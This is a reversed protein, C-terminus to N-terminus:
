RAVGVQYLAARVASRMGSPLIGSFAAGTLCTVFGKSGAFYAVAKTKADPTAPQPQAAAPVSPRAAPQSPAPQPTPAPQPAPALPQSVAGYVALSGEPVSSLPPAQVGAPVPDVEISYVMRECKPTNADGGQDRKGPHAQPVILRLPGEDGASLASGSKEYAIISMLNGPYTQLAEAISLDVSYGDRAKVVLKSAGADLRLKQQLLTSLSVGKYNEEYYTYPELQKLFTYHGSFAPMAKLDAMSYTVSTAARGPVAGLVCAGAVLALVLLLALAIPVSGPSDAAAPKGDSEKRRKVVYEVIVFALVLLGAGGVVVPIWLAVPGSASVRGYVWVENVPVKKANPAKYGKPLPGVEILRLNSVWSPKNMDTPSYQPAVYRLPGTGDPEPDLDKGGTKYAVIPALGKSNKRALDAPTLKTNVKPWFYGDSALVRVSAAPSTVGAKKLIETFPVGDFQFTAITKWRNISRYDGSARQMAKLQSTNLVM